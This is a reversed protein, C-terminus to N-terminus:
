PIVHTDQKEGQLDFELWQQGGLGKFVDVKGDGGTICRYVSHCDMSSGRRRFCASGQGTGIQTQLRIPCPIMSGLLRIIALSKSEM